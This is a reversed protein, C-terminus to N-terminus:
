RGSSISRARGVLIDLDVVVGGWREVGLAGLM